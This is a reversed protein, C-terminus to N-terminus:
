FRDLIEKEKVIEGASLGGNLREFQYADFGAISYIYEKNARAFQLRSEFQHTSTSEAAEIKALMATCFDLGTEAFLKQYYQKAQVLGGAEGETKKVVNINLFNWCLRLDDENTFDFFSPSLVHGFYWEKSFNEWSMGEEFQAAIWERMKVADLAFFPAYYTCPSQLFVYRRLAIQWKRKERSEQIEPSQERPTWKKRLM